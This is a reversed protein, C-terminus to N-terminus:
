KEAIRKLKIQPIDQVWFGGAVGKSGDDLKFYEYKATLLRQRAIALSVRSTDMTIWRRGWLEAVYATTGSGCTPDLILDGPDTTMLMCREIVKVNTQVVYVKPDTFAGTQTDNWVETMPTMPFDDLFRVYTLSNQTPAALREAQTLRMMGTANTKWHGRGPRFTWGQFEVAYSSKEGGTQSTLNDHRYIRAGEPLNQVNDREES